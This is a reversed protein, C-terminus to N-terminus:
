VCGSSSHPLFRSLTQYVTCLTLHPLSVSARFSRVTPTMTKGEKAPSISFFIPFVRHPTTIWPFIPPYSRQSKYIGRGKDNTLQSLHINFSLVEWSRLPPSAIRKENFSSKANRKATHHQKNTTAPVENIRKFANSYPVRDYKVRRTSNRTM